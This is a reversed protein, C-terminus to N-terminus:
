YCHKAKLVGDRQVKLSGSVISKTYFAVEGVLNNVDKNHNEL